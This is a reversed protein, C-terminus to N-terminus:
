SPRRAPPHKLGPRDRDVAAVDDRDVRGFGDRLPEGAASVM